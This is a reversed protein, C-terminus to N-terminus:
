RVDPIKTRGHADGTASRGKRVKDEMNDKQTGVWLHSPNVRPPNDCRHLVCPKDPMIPGVCLEHARRHALIAHGNYKFQGYGDKYFSAMWEWCDDPGRQDAKSWFRDNWDINHISIM